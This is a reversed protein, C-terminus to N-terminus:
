GADHFIVGLTYRNGGTLESVGHKINVRHYSSSGKVPRFNTTFILLDGKRPTLVIAKSQARPRQELLVFEGGTFDEGPESLLVVAQMPFFLEGYLDQHMANYGRAGYQLILPTPKVQGHNHCLELLENLDEPFQKEIKLANMWGNAIPAIQPYINERLEQIIGPLPYRFYKYEGSGFKHRDMDVTKRYLETDDYGNVLASCEAATLINPSLAYGKENLSGAASQWDVQTLRQKIDM